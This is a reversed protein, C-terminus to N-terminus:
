RNGASRPLHRIAPRPRQVVGPQSSTRGAAAGIGATGRAAAGTPPLGRRRGRRGAALLAALEEEASQLRRNRNELSQRNEEVEGRSRERSSFATQTEELRRILEDAVLALQRQNGSDLPLGHRAALPEVQERFEQIDYEIAAVRDRMRRTESLSSRATEVRAIFTTMADSTLTEDLGREGLWQRWERQAEQAAADAAERERAASEVRQEQLKGRRSADELRARAANWADLANRAAELRSEASDLAAADTYGDLGLVAASDLLSQRAAETAREAEAAQESLTQAMASPVASTTPRRMFWLMVAAGLLVLGCLVGVILAGGGFLIGAVALVAGALVLAIVPLLSVRSSDREPTKQAVALANLQGRLTEHNQRQREYESLRGRAARLADQRQTLAVADLPPETPLKERAEQREEQHDQLTRREQVLQFQAQQSPEATDGIREKWGDM